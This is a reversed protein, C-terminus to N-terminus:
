KSNKNRITDNKIFDGDKNYKPVVTYKLLGDIDYHKEKILWDNKDYTM